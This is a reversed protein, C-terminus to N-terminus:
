REPSRGAGSHTHGEYLAHWMSYTSNSPGTGPGTELYALLSSYTTHIRGDSGGRDDYYTRPVTHLVTPLMAIWGSFAGLGAFRNCSRHPASRHLLAPRTWHHGTCHLLQQSPRHQSATRSAHVHVVYASCSCSGPGSALLAHALPLDRAICICIPHVALCSVLHSSGRTLLYQLDPKKQWRSVRHPIQHLEKKGKRKRATGEEERRPLGCPGEISRM